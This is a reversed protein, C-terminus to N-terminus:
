PIPSNVPESSAQGGSARDYTPASQLMRFLLWLSFALVTLEATLTFVITMLDLMDMTSIWGARQETATQIVQMGGQPANMFVFLLRGVSGLLLVVSIYAGLCGALTGIWLSRLISSSPPRCEANRMRRGLRTYHYSWFMTFLLLLLSGFSVFERMGFQRGPLPIANSRVVVIGLMVIPLTALAVQFWLGLWGLRTFSKALSEVTSPPLDDNPTPNSM